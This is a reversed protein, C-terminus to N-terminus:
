SYEKMLSKDLKLVIKLVQRVKLKHNPNFDVLINDIENKTIGGVMKNAASM